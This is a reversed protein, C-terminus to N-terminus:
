CSETSAWSSIWPKRSRPPAPINYTRVAAEVSMGGQDVTEATPMYALVGNCYGGFMTHKAKSRKKVGLGIEVFPEGPQATLLFDDLRYALIEFPLSEKRVGAKVKELVNKAWRM